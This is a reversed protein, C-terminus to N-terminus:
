QRQFCNAKYCAICFFYMQVTYKANSFHWYVTCINYKTDNQCSKIEFFKRWLEATISMQHDDSADLLLWSWFHVTVFCVPELGDACHVNCSGLPCNRPDYDNRASLVYDLKLIINKFLNNKLGLLMVNKKQQISTLYEIMLSTVYLKIKFICKLLQKFFLHM